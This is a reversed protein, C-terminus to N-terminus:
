NVAGSLSHVDTVGVRLAVAESQGSLLCPRTVKQGGEPAAETM